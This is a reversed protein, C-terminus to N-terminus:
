GAGGPASGSTAQYKNGAPTGSPYNPKHVDNGPAHDRMAVCRGVLQTTSTGNTSENTQQGNIASYYGSTVKIEVEWDYATTGNIPREFQVADWTTTDVSSILSRNIAPNAGTSVEWLYQGATPDPTGNSDSRYILVGGNNAGIRTYMHYPVAIGYSQGNRNGNSTTSFLPVDNYSPYALFLGTDATYGGSSATSMFNTTTYGSLSPINALEETFFLEGNTDAADGTNPLALWLSERVQDEINRMAVAADQSAFVEATSRSAMRLSNIYMDMSGLMLFGMILLSVMTEILTFACTTRRRSVASVALRM